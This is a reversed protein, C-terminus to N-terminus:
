SPPLVYEIPQELNGTSAGPENDEPYLSVTQWNKVAKYRYTVPLEAYQLLDSLSSVDDPVAIGSTTSPTVAENDDYLSRSVGLEYLYKTDRNSADNKSSIIAEVWAVGEFNTNKEALAVRDM